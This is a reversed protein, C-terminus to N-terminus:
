TVDSMQQMLTSRAQKHLVDRSELREIIRINDKYHEWLGCIIEAAIIDSSNKAVMRILFLGDRRLFHKVFKDVSEDQKLKDM